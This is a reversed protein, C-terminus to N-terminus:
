QGRKVYNDGLLIEGAVNIRENAGGTMAVGIGSRRHREAHNLETGVRPQSTPIAAGTVM